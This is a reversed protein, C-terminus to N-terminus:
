LIFKISGCDWLQRYGAEFMMEAETKAASFNILANKKLKHKQFKFRSQKFPTNPKWWFYGPSIYKEENSLQRYTAGTSYCCDAYSIINKSNLINKAYNLLKSFGGIVQYHQETAFRILEIRDKEFRSKGFTAVQLLKDNEFLGICLKAVASTRIHNKELFIKADTFSIEKIKLKRAGIRKKFLGCKALIMSLPLTLDYLEDEFFTLLSINKEM